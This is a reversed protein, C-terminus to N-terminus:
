PKSGGNVPPKPLGNGSPLEPVPGATFGNVKFWDDIEADAERRKAALDLPAGGAGAIEHKQPAEIGLIKCRLEICRLIVEMFRADGDRSFKKQQRKKVIVPTSVTEGDVVSTGAREELTSTDFGGEEKSRELADWAEAELRFTRALEVAKLRGIDDMSQKYWRDTLIKLNYRIQQRTVGLEEGVATLSRNGPLMLRATATLQEERELNTDTKRRAMAFTRVRLRLSPPGPM